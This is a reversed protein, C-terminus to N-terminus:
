AAIRGIAARAQGLLALRRAYPATLSREILDHVQGTVNLVNIDDQEPEGQALTSLLAADKVMREMEARDPRFQDMAGSISGALRLRVSRFGEPPAIFLPVDGAPIDDLLRNLMDAATAMADQQPEFQTAAAIEEFQLLTDSLDIGDEIAASGLAEVWSTALVGAPNSFIGGARLTGLIPLIAKIVLLSKM